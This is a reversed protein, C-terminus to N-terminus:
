NDIPPLILNRIISLHYGLVSNLFDANSPLPTSRYMSFLSVYIQWDLLADVVYKTRFKTDQVPAEGTSNTGLTQTQVMRIVYKREEETLFKATEPSDHIAFPAVFAVVVTLLGELIFIWRWGAYGGVGDM